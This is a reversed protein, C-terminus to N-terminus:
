ESATAATGAGADDEIAVAGIFAKVSPEMLKFTPATRPGQKRPWSPIGAAPMAAAEQCNGDSAATPSAASVLAAGAGTTATAVAVALPLGAVRSNSEFTASSTLCNLRSWLSNNSMSCDGVAKAVSTLEGMSTRKVDPPPPGAGCDGGCGNGCGCGCSFACCDGSCSRCCCSWCCSLLGPSLRPRVTGPTCTVNAGLTSAVVYAGCIWRSVVTTTRSLLM